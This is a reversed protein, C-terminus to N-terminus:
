YLEQGYHLHEGVTFKGGNEDGERSSSLPLSSSSPVEGLLFFRLSFIFACYLIVCRTFHIHNHYISVRWRIQNNSSLSSFYFVFILFIMLYLNTPNVWTKGKFNPPFKHSTTPEDIQNHILQSIYFSKWLSYDEISYSLFIM